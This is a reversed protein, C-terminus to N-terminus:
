NLKLADPHFPNTAGLLLAAISFNHSSSNYALVRGRYAPDWMASMSRPPHKVLKKNYILGIESYTYPIAYLKKERTLGLIANYNQFRPIQNAHNPINEIDIPISLGKDIYRQLEATNVAFVDYDRGNNTNLKDWLEDDSGVYNVEVSVGYRKEFALVIDPDAYGPWALIRLVEKASISNSFLFSIAVLFLAFLTRSKQIKLLM